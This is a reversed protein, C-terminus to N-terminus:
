APVVGLRAALIVERDHGGRHYLAAAVDRPVPPCCEVSMLHDISNCWADLQHDTLPPVYPRWSDVIGDDTVPALREAARRRRNLPTSSDAIRRKKSM